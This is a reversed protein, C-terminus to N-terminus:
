VKMRKAWYMQRHGRAELKAVLSIAEAEYLGNSVEVQTGHDDQRWVSWLEPTTLGSPLHTEPDLRGAYLAGPFAAEVSIAGVIHQNFLELEVAPVWLEQHRSAGAVRVEYRSAFEADVQFRTVFGIYDSAQDKTNWDCAIEIAYARTLVPYFVSQHALRPPFARFCAGAILQLERLGVPRYLIM